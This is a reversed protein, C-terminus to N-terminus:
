PPPSFSGQGKILFRKFSWSIEHHLADWSSKLTLKLYRISEPIMKIWLFGLKWVSWLNLQNSPGLRAVGCRQDLAIGRLGEGFRWEPSLRRFDIASGFGWSGWSTHFELYEPMPPSLPPTMPMISARFKCKKPANKISEIATSFNLPQDSEILALSQESCELETVHGLSQKSWFVM